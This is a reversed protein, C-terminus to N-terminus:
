FGDCMVRIHALHCILFHFSREAIWAPSSRRALPEFFVWRPTMTIRGALPKAQEFTVSSLARIAPRAGGAYAFILLLIMGNHGALELLIAGCEIISIAPEYGPDRGLLL